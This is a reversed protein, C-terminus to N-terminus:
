PVGIYLELTEPALPPVEVGDAAIGIEKLSHQLFVAQPPPAKIDHVQIKVGRGQREEILFIPKKIIWGADKLASSFYDSYNQAEISGQTHRVAINTGASAKLLAVLKDHQEPTLIRQQPKEQFIVTPPPVNIQINPQGASPEKKGREQRLSSIRSLLSM